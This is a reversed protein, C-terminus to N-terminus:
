DGKPRKTVTRAPILILQLRYFDARGEEELKALLILHESLLAVGARPQLFIYDKEYGMRLKHYARKSEPPGIFPLLM